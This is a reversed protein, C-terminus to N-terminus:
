VRGSPVKNKGLCKRLWRHAGHRIRSHEAGTGGKAVQCNEADPSGEGRVASSLSNVLLWCACMSANDRACDVVPLFALYSRLQEVVDLPPPAQAHRRGVAPQVAVPCCKISHAVQRSQGTTSTDRVGSPLPAFCGLGRLAGPSSFCELCSCTLEPAGECCVIGPIAALLPVCGPRSSSSSSSSHRRGGVGEGCCLPWSCEVAL